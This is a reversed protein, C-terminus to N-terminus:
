GALAYHFTRDTQANNAHAITFASKTKAAVYMAGGALEAAANATTPTFMIKSFAGVRSDTVSTSDASAALTVTGVNNTQGQLVGQLIKSLTHLGSQWDAFHLPPTPHGVDPM